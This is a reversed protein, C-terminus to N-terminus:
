NSGFVAIDVRRNTANCQNILQKDGQYQQECDSILFNAKGLGQPNIEVGLDAQQLIGEVTHSRRQSLKQNYSEGGVPDSYGDLQISHIKASSQKLKQTFDTLNQQQAPSLSQSSYNDYAFSVQLTELVYNDQRCNQTDVRSLVNAQYKLNALAKEAQESDVFTFYPPQGNNSGVKVYTIQQSPTYFRVGSTHNGFSQNSTYSQAILNQQACLKIASFGGDLLSTQYDANVYIDIAGGATQPERYFVVLGEGNSLQISAIDKEKFLEWSESPATELSCSALFLSALAIATVRLQM